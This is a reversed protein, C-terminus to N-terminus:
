PPIFAKILRKWRCWEQIHDLIHTTKDQRFKSLLETGVDYRIPLQFHNLFTLSLDDFTTYTGETVRYVMVGCSGHPHM